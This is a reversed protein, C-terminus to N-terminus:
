FRPNISLLYQGGFGKYIYYTAAEIEIREVPETPPQRLNPLNVPWNLNVRGIKLCHEPVELEQNMLPGDIAKIKM